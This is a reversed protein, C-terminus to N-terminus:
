VSCRKDSAAPLSLTPGSAAARVTGALRLDRLLLPSGFGWLILLDTPGPAHRM